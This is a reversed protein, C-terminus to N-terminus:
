IFSDFIGSAGKSIPDTIASSAASLPSSIPIVETLRAGLDLLKAAINKSDDSLQSLNLTASTKAIRIERLTASFHIANGTAARRPISVEQFVMNEYRRLSTLVNFPQRSKWLRVMENYADISAKTTGFLQSITQGANLVSSIAGFRLPSDSVVGDIRLELAQLQVHDSIQAGEEVPNETVESRLSHEEESVADIQITGIQGGGTGFIISFVDAM